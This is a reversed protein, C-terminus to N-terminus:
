PLEDIASRALEDAIENERHGNHGKIWHWHVKHPAIANELRQWLEINKVTKNGATKWNRKKWNPLWEVIGNHVYKSDTTVIVECPEKLSELASIVAMLEMKNNTTYKEGGKIHKEKDQYRILAGFGGPGPNGRCAGDTFIEIKKM